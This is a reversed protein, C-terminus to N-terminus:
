CEAGLAILTLDDDKWINQDGQPRKTMRLPAFIEPLPGAPSGESRSLIVTPSLIVAGADIM